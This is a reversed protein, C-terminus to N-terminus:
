RRLVDGRDEAMPARPSWAPPPPADDDDRERDGDILSVEDCRSSCNECSSVGSAMDMARWKECSRVLRKQRVPAGSCEDATRRASSKEERAAGRDEHEEGAGGWLVCLAM